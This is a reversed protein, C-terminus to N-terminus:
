RFASPPDAAGRAIGVLQARACKEKGSGALEPNRSPGALPSTLSERATARRMWEPTTQKEEGSRSACDAYDRDPQLRPRCRNPFRRQDSFVIFQPQYVAIQTPEAYAAQQVPEVHLGFFREGTRPAVETYAPASTAVIRNELGRAPTVGHLSKRSTICQQTTLAM